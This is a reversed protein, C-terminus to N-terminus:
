TERRRVEKEDGSGTTGQEVDFLLTFSLSTPSSFVKQGDGVPSAQKSQKSM